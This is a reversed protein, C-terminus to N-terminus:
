CEVIRNDGGMYIERVKPDSKIEDPGGQAIIRGNHLVIIREAVEFVLDMDHAVLIVTVDRGLDRIRSAIEVGEVHTLGNSPEDMLILKPKSALCLAIELKRQEGYSIRHVPDDKKNWLDIQDLLDKAKALPQDYFTIPRLIQFRSREVGHLALLINKLVTLEPFLNTIQFSRALGLHARQFVSKHTVDKGFFLVEGASPSLQGNLLNFLTTKGAGNPGIIALREGVMVSFSINYAAQIGGFNKHLNNVRLAEM